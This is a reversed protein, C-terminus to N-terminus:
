RFICFPTLISGFVKCSSEGPRGRSFRSGRLWAAGRADRCVLIRCAAGRGGGCGLLLDDFFPRWSGRFDSVEETLIRRLLQSGAARGLHLQLPGATVQVQGGEEEVVVSVQVLRSSHESAPIERGAVTHVVLLLLQLMVLKLRRSRPM